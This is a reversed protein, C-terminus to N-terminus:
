STVGLITQQNTEKLHGLNGGSLKLLGQEDLGQNTLGLDKRMEMLVKIFQSTVKSNSLGTEPKLQRLAIYAQIVKPNAWLILQKELEQLDDADIEVQYADQWLLTGWIQMFYEYAAIKRTNLADTSKGSWRLASAIISTCILLTAAAITAIAALQPDLKAFLSDIIFHFAYYVGAGLLGLLSLGFLLSLTTSIFKM